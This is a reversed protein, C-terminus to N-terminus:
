PRSADWFDSVLLGERSRKEQILQYRFAYEELTKLGEIDGPGLDYRWGKSFQEYLFEGNYESTQAIGDSLLSLNQVGLNRSTILVKRLAGELHKDNYAWLSLVLPRSALTHWLESLNYINEDEAREQQHYVFRLGRDGTLLVADFTERWSDEVDKAVCIDPMVHFLHDLVIRLVVVPTRAFEDVAIRRVKSIDEKAVLILSSSSNNGIVAPGEIHHAGVGRLFEISPILAADLAGRELSSALNGPEDYALHVHKEPRRTIGFLLPRVSIFSPAGIRLTKM